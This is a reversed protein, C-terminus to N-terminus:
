AHAQVPRRAAAPPVQLCGRIKESQNNDKQMCVEVCSGIPFILLIPVLPWGWQNRGSANPVVIVQVARSVALDHRSAPALLDPGRVELVALPIVGTVLM